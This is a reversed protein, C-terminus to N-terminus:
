LSKLIAKLEDTRKITMESECDYISTEYAQSGTVIDLTFVPCNTDRFHIWARQSIKIKEIVEAGVVPESAYRKKIGALLAKYTNNMEADHNTFTEKACDFVQDSVQINTCSDNAWLAFPIFLLTYIRIKM